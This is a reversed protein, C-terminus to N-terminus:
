AVPQLVPLRNRALAPFTERQWQTWVAKPAWGSEQGTPVSLDKEPPLAAPGHLQKSGYLALALFAPLQVEM